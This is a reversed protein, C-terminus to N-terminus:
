TPSLLLILRPVGTRQNFLDQLQALDQLDALAADETAFVATGHRPQLPAMGSTLVVWFLVVSFLKRGGRVM